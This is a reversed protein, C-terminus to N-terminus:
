KKANKIEKEIIKEAEKIDNKFKSLFEQEQKNLIKNGRIKKLIAIEENADEDLLEFSKSVMKETKELKKSLSISLRKIRHHMYLIIIIVLFILALLPILITIYNTFKSVFFNLKHEKNIVQIPNMYESNIGNTTMSRAIISYNGLQMKNEPVYNFKGDSNTFVHDIMVSGNTKNTITFEVDVAPDAIGKLVMFEDIYLDTPYYTLVPIKLVTTSFDLSGSLKISDTDVATVKLSHIGNKLEPSQFLHSGDDLWLIPSMDDIQINYSKDLVPQASTILFKNPSYKSTNNKIESIIIRTDKIPINKSIEVKKKVIEKEEKKSILINAKGKNNLVETGNGDNALISASNFLINANGVAKAKFVITIANGSDGTYGNLVVGEFSVVGDFNSYSPEQAWLNLISGSKSISSLSLINTPFKINASIANISKSETNVYVKIKITDGVKFSGSSPSFGINAASVRYLPLALIFFYFLFFSITYKKINKM